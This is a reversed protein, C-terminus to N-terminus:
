VGEDNARRLADQPPNPNTNSDLLFGFARRAPSSLPEVGAQVGDGLKRWVKSASRGLSVREVVRNSDREVASTRFWEGGLRAAPASALRALELTASTAEAISDAGMPAIATPALAIPAPKSKDDNTLATKSQQDKIHHPRSQFQFTAVAAVLVSAAAAAGIAWPFILRRSSRAEEAALRALVRDTFEPSKSSPAAEIRSRLARDLLLYEQYKARCSACEEGHRAAKSDITIPDISRRDLFQHIRTEFERCTLNPNTQKM